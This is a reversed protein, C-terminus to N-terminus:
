AARGPQQDLWEDIEDPVFRLATGVYRHPLGSDKMRNRVTNPHVGLYEAVDQLKWLGDNRKAEDM